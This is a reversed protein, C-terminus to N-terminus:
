LEADVEAYWTNQSRQYLVGANGSPSSALSGNFNILYENQGFAGSISSVNIVSGNDIFELDNTASSYNTSVTPTARMPLPLRIASRWSGGGVHTATFTYGAGTFPLKQYYRQCLALEEGYSRHEFPTAVKGLELQVGTIEFYNGVTDSIDVIDPSVRNANTSSAWASTNQTGSTFSSPAAIWWFAYLSLNNDNAFGNSTDPPLTITKYEWTGSSNVTYNKSVQRNSDQHYLEFTYTGVVNTKVWFSVTVSKADPTGFGLCQVDKGELRQNITVNSGSGTATTEIKFTNGFGSPGSTGQTVTYTGSNRDFKWRDCTYYGATVVGTESTGRQAVQMAGNYLLNRRGSIGILAQQEQPTEARLMAEGAIGTPKDLEALKERVNISPKEIRVTM